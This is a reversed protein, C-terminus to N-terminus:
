DFGTRVPMNLDTVVLDVVHEDIMALAEDASRAAIVDAQLPALVAALLLAEDYMDDVVLVRGFPSRPQRPDITPMAAIARSRPEQMIGLVFALRAGSLSASQRYCARM